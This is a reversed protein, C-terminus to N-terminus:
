KICLWEEETDPFTWMKIQNGKMERVMWALRGMELLRKEGTELGYQEVYLGRVTNFLDEETKCPMLAKHTKIPGFRGLGAINDVTDGMLLQAYFFRLGTGRLKKGDKSLNISGLTDVWAPGFSPQAGCEWQYHYGPTIKLDKDRSCIITDRKDLRSFQEISLLDDAELGEAWVVNYQNELYATINNFHFPKAGKRTGKYVKTVAIDNRFNNGRTLYIIPPETAYCESCINDIANHIREAVKEWEIPHQFFKIPEEGGM